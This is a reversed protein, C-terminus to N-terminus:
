WLPQTRRMTWAHRPTPRRVASWPASNDSRTQRKRLQWGRCRPRRPVPSSPGDHTKEGRLQSSQGQATDNEEKKKASDSHHDHDYPSRVVVGSWRHATECLDQPQQKKKKAGEFWHGEDTLSGQRARLARAARPMSPSMVARLQERPLLCGRLAARRRRRRRRRLRLQLRNHRYLGSAM